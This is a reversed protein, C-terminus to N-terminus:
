NQLTLLMPPRGKGNEAPYVHIVSCRFAPNIPVIHFVFM